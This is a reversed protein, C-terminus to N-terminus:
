TANLPRFAVRIPGDQLFLHGDRLELKEVPGFHEPVIVCFRLSTVPKDEATVWPRSLAMAVRDLQVTHTRGYNFLYGSEATWDGAGGGEVDGPRQDDIL